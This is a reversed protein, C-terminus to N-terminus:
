RAGGTIVPHRDAIEVGAPACGGCVAFVVGDPHTVTTTVPRVHCAACLAYGHDVAQRAGLEARRQRDTAAERHFAWGILGVTAPTVVLAVAEAHDFVAEVVALVASM